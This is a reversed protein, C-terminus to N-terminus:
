GGDQKKSDANLGKHLFHDHLQTILVNNNDLTARIGVLDIKIQVDEDKLQKIEGEVEKIGGVQDEVKDMRILIKGLCKVGKIIFGAIGMNLVVITAIIGTIPGVGYAAIIAEM